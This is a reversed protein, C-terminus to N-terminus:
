RAAKSSGMNILVVGLFLLAMGILKRSNLYEGFFQLGAMTILILGCTEWTAYALAMPLHKVSLSFFYFSLGIMAYMFLFPGVSSTDSAFKMAILGISEVAVAAALYLWPRTPLM